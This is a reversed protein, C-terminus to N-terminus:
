ETETTTCIAKADVDDVVEGLEYEIDICEAKPKAAEKILNDIGKILGMILTDM